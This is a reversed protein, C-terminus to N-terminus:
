NKSKMANIKSKLENVIRNGAMANQNPMRIKTKPLRTVITATNCSLTLKDGNGLGKGPEFSM